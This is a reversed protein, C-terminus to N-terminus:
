NSVKKATATSVPALTSSDPSVISDEFIEVMLEKVRDDKGKYKAEELYWARHEVRTQHVLGEEFHAECSPCFDRESAPDAEAGCSVCETFTTSQKPM